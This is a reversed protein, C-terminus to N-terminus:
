ERWRMSRVVADLAQRVLDVHPPRATGRLLVVHDGHVVVLTTEGVPGRVDTWDARVLRVKAGEITPPLLDAVTSNPHAKRVDDAYGNRVLGIPIWGPIHAPLDPVDLSLAADSPDVGAPTLLLAFDASPRAVWEAPHSLRTGSKAEVFTRAAPKTSASGDGDAPTTTTTPGSALGGAGADGATRGACGPAAALLACLAVAAGGRVVDAVIVM